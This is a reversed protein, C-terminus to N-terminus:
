LVANSGKHWHESAVNCIVKYHMENFQGEVLYKATLLVYCIFYCFSQLCFRFSVLIHASAWHSPRGALYLHRGRHFNQLEMGQVMGRLKASTRQQLAM